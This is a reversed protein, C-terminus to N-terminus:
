AAAPKDQGPETAVRMELTFYSTFPGMPEATAVIPRATKRAMTLLGLGAGGNRPRDSRALLKLYHEHLDERGMSNLIGLRHALLVASAAPVVNGTALVLGAEDRVLLVFSSGGLMGNAHRCINDAAELLVRVMRKRVTVPDNSLRCHAEALELMGPVMGPDM